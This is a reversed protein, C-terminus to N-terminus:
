VSGPWGKGCHYDFFALRAQHVDPRNFMAHVPDFASESFRFVNGLQAKVISGGFYRSLVFSMWYDDVLEFRPDPIPISCLRLMVERSVLFNNAHMFHVDIEPYDQDFFHLGRREEWVQEATAKGVVEIDFRHGCACIGLVDSRDKILAHYREVFAKLYDREPVVDDDCFLLLRGRALVSLAMRVICHYNYTSQILEISGRASHKQVIENVQRAVCHNNNWIVTQWSGDFSQDCLKGILSDLEAVRSFSIVNVTLDFPALRRM